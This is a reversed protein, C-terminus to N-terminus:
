DLFSKIMMSEVPPKIWKNRSFFIVLGIIIYVLAVIFFGYYSKGLLEGIWLALGISLLILFFISFIALVFVSIVTALIGSSKDIARLKLLEIRTEIYDKVKELLLEIQSNPEM